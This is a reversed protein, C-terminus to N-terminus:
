ASGAYEAQPEQGTFAPRTKGALERELHRHAALARALTADIEAQEAADTVRIRHQPGSKATSWIEATVRHTVEITQVEQESM